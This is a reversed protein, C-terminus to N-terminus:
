PLLIIDAIHPIANQREFRFIHQGARLPLFLETFEKPNRLGDPFDGTKRAFVPTPLTKGDLTLVMPRSETMAYKAVLKYDGCNPVQVSYTLQRVDATGRDSAEKTDTFVAGYGLCNWCVHDLKPVPFIVPQESCETGEVKKPITVSTSGANTSITVTGGPFVKSQGYVGEVVKAAESRRECTMSITNHDLKANAKAKALSGKCTIAGSESIPENLKRFPSVEGSLPIYTVDVVVLDETEFRPRVILGSKNTCARVIEVANASIVNSISSSNQQFMAENFNASCILEATARADKHGFDLSFDEYGIGLNTESTKSENFRRCYKAISQTYGSNFSSGAYRDFLGKKALELCIGDSASAQTAGFLCLAIVLFKSPKM